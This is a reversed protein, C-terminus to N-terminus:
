YRLGKETAWRVLISQEKVTAIRNFRGRVQVIRKTANEVEVTCMAWNGKNDEKTLVWISTRGKEIAGAYSFVCHQQRRGEEQLEKATLLEKVRWIEAETNSSFDYVAGEFGSPNFRNFRGVKMKSLGAHWEQMQRIVSDATRGKLSYVKNEAVAERCCHEVFDHIPKVQNPDLMSQNCFWQIETSFLEENIHADYGYRAPVINPLTTAIAEWLRKSGGLGIVQAYRVASAITCSSPAQLFLHCMQRTMQVPFKKDKVLSYLSGGSAIHIVADQYHLNPKSFESWLFQPTKYKAFVHNALSIFLAHGSKGQPKWDKIQRIFMTRKHLIAAICREFDEDNRIYDEVKASRSIVEDYFEDLPPKKNSRKVAEILYKQKVQQEHILQALSAEKKRRNEAKQKQAQNKDTKM